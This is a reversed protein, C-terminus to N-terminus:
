RPARNSVWQKVIALDEAGLATYGFRTPMKLDPDDNAGGRSDVCRETSSQDVCALVRRALDWTSKVDPEKSAKASAEFLPWGAVADEDLHPWNDKKM